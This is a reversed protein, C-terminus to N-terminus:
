LGLSVYNKMSETNIVSRYLYNDIFDILVLGPNLSKNATECANGIEQPSDIAELRYIKNFSNM